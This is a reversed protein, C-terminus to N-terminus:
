HAELALMQEFKKKQREDLMQMVRSQGDSLVNDYYKAVDDLIMSLQRTQEDTLQLEKRLHQLEFRSVFKGHTATHSAASHTRLNMLLAGTVGGCLFVLAFSICLTAKASSAPAALTRTSMRPSPSWSTSGTPPATM